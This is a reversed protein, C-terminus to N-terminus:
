KLYESYDKKFKWGDRMMQDYSPLKEFERVGKTHLIDMRFAYVWNNRELAVMSIIMMSASITMLLIFIITHLEM